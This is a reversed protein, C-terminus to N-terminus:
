IHLLIKYQKNTSQFFKQQQELVKQENEKESLNWDWEIKQNQKNMNDDYFEARLFKM